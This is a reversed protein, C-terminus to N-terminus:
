GFQATDFEKSYYCNKMFFIKVFLTVQAEEDCIRVIFSKDHIEIRISLCWTVGKRKGKTEIENQGSFFGFMKKTRSVKILKEHENGGNTM